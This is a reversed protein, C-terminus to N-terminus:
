QLKRFEGNLGSSKFYYGVTKTYVDGPKPIETSYDVVVKAESGDKM